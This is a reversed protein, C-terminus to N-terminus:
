DYTSSPTGAPSVPDLYIKVMQMTSHVTSQFQLQGHEPDLGVWPNDFCLRRGHSLEASIALAPWWTLLTLRTAHEMGQRAVWIALEENECVIPVSVKDFAVRAYEILRVKMGSWVEVVVVKFTRGKLIENLDHVLDLMQVYDVNGEFTKRHILSM